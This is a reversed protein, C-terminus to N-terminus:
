REDGSAAAEQAPNQQAAVLLPMISIVDERGSQCGAKFAEAERAIRAAEANARDAAEQWHSVEQRMDARIRAVERRMEARARSRASQWSIVLGAAAGIVLIPVIM